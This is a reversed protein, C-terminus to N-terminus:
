LLNSYLQKIESQDIKIPGGAHIKNQFALASLIDLDSAQIGLTKLSTRLNLSSVWGNLKEVIAKESKELWGLRKSLLQFKAWGEKMYFNMVEPFLVSAAAGVPCGTYDSLAQTMSQLTGLGKQRSIGSLISASLWIHHHHLNPLKNLDDPTETLLYLGELAIGECIPHEMISLYSELLIAMSQMKWEQIRIESCLLSAMPDAFVIQSMLTPSFIVSRGLTIENKFEIIRSLEDGSTGVPISVLPPIKHIINKEGGHLEDYFNLDQDHKSFFAIARGYEMATANGVALICQANIKKYRLAATRAISELTLKETLPFIEPEIGKVRLDTIIEQFFNGLSTESDTIVFPELLDETVLYDSVERAAGMGFRILTPFNFQKVFSHM